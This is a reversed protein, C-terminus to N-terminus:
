ACFLKKFTPDSFALQVSSTESSINQSIDSAQPTHYM